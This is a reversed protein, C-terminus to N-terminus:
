FRSGIALGIIVGIICILNTGILDGFGGIWDGAQLLAMSETAYTSFTTYAGCFGVAVFLRVRPDLTAHKGAYAIFIALLCSGTFNIIVTGWPFANGFAGAAWASVLYRLNAGIFGGIGILIFTEM